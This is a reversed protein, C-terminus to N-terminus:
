RSATDELRHADRSSSPHRAASAALVGPDTAARAATLWDDRPHCGDVDERRRHELGELLIPGGCWACSGEHGDELRALADEFEEIAEVAGYMHLATTARKVGTPDQGPDAALLGLFATDYALRAKWLGIGDVM